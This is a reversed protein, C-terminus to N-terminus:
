NPRRKHPESISIRAYITQGTAVNPLSLIGASLDSAWLVVAPTGKLVATGHVIGLLAVEGVQWESSIKQDPWLTAAVRAVCQALATPVEIPRSSEMFGPEDVFRDFFFKMVLALEKGTTIQRKLENAPLDLIEM